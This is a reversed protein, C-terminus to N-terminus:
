IFKWYSNSQTNCISWSYLHTLTQACHGSQNLNNEILIHDFKLSLIDPLTLTQHRTDGKWTTAQSSTLSTQLNSHLCDGKISVVRPNLRLKLSLSLRPEPKLHYVQRWKWSRFHPINKLTATIKFRNPIQYMVWNDFQRSRLWAGQQLICYHTNNWM